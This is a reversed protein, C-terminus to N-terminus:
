EYVPERVSCFTDTAENIITTTYKTFTSTVTVTATGSVTTV